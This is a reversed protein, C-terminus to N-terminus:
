AHDGEQGGDKGCAGAHAACTHVYGNPVEGQGRGAHQREERWWRWDDDEARGAFDAALGDQVGEAGGGGGFDVGDAAGLRWVDVWERWAEVLEDVDREVVVLEM